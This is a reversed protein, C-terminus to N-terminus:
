DDFDEYSGSRVMDLLSRWAEADEDDVPTVMSKADEPPNLRREFYEAATMGESSRLELDLGRIDPYAMLVGMTDKRAYQAAYHLLGRGDPAVFEASAGHQLLAKVSGAGDWEVSTLLPSAGAGNPADVHLGADLLLRLKQTTAAAEEPDVFCSRLDHLPNTTPSTRVLAAGHSILLGTLEVPVDTRSISYDLCSRGARSRRNVDAGNEILFRAARPAPTTMASLLPTIGEQGTIDPDAGWALLLGLVDVDDLIAALHMPSMQTSDLVNVARPNDRLADQVTSLPRNDPAGRACVADHIPFAATSGGEAEDEDDGLDLIQQYSALVEADFHRRLTRTILKAFSWPSKRTTNLSNKLVFVQGAPM